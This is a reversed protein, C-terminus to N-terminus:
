VVSRQLIAVAEVHSSWPFQDIPLVSEVTYGGDVLLRLDRALTAPNCSVAVITAVNSVALQTAQEKAGTRPPDFVVADYSELERPVLPMQALDRDMATVPHTATGSRIAAVMDPDNEVAHTPAISSLPFTLAGCGAFLDAIRTAESLANGVTNVISSEGAASPQLFAGLPLAINASGFAMRPSRRQAVPEPGSRGEWGIRALDYQEAFAALNERDQLSLDAIRDPRILLDIGSKTETVLLSASRGIAGITTTLKRLPGVLAMIAPRIAPCEHVDVVHHSRRARFGIIPAHGKHFSFRVRRRDGAAISVTKKIDLDRFGRSELASVIFNRKTLAITDGSLHQLACGGCNGFHGCIPEVRDPGQTIIEEIRASQGEKRGKEPTVILRDGPASYPVYYREGAVNAVGDGQIGIHSVTVESFKSKNTHTKNM